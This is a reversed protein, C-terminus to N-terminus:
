VNVHSLSLEKGWYNLVEKLKPTETENVILYDLVITIYQPLLENMEKNLASSFIMYAELNIGYKWFFAPLLVALFTLLLQCFFLSLCSISIEKSIWKEVKFSYLLMLIKNM